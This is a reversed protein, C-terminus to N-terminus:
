KSSKSVSHSEQLGEDFTFNAQKSDIKQNPPRGGKKPALPRQMTKELADVFDTSGLPRGTHTNQRLASLADAAQGAAAAPLRAACCVGADEAGDRAVARVGQSGCASEQGRCSGSASCSRLDGGRVDRRHRM